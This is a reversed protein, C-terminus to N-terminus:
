QIYVISTKRFADAIHVIASYFLGFCYIYVMVNISRNFVICLIAFIVDIIGLSLKMRWRGGNKKSELARAIGIAGNFLQIVVLYIMIWIRPIDNFTFMLMGLDLLIIGKYLHIKGGVMHKAMTFYYILTRVANLILSVSLIAAVLYFGNEPDKVMLYIAAFIIIGEFFSEARQIKTM